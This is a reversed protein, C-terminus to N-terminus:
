ELGLAAKGQEFVLDVPIGAKAIRDLDTKLEAGVQAREDLMKKVGEANGDGQLMLLEAALNSIATKMKAVEVKYLGTKQRVIAGEKMLTNFTIMNAKGHASAAGFRVSRFVSSVFTVYYDDLKGNLYGMEFLRTVMYLGLVDAKCEEIASHNAGLADRV